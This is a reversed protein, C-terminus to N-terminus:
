RSGTFNQQFILFDGLDVDHDGDLDANVAPPCTSAPPNNSGGFCLQFTTFDALDVDCDFDFNAREPTGRLWTDGLYGSNTEWGGFMVAEDRESDFAMAHGVRLGPPAGNPLRLTWNEGDWDWTNGLLSGSYAWGAYLVTVGRASDYTMSGWSRPTPGSTARLAWSVGNWEWTEGYIQFPPEGSSGGFLVVVNRATDYALAPKHVGRPGDLARLVWLEGNWEWTERFVSSYNGGGFLVTAGRAVDYAMAHGARAVPGDAGRSIWTTGDWEWTDGYWPSGGASQGGFLVTVGRRSDYAMAHHARPNPGTDAGWLWEWGDWERTDGFVDITRQGGFLVVRNRASDYAM